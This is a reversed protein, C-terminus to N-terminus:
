SGGHAAPTARFVCVCLFHIHCLPFERTNYCTLSGANNTKPQQQPYTRDRAQSSIHTCGFFFFHCLSTLKSVEKQKAIYHIVRHPLKPAVNKISVHVPQSRVTLAERGVSGGPVESPLVALKVDQLHARPRPM